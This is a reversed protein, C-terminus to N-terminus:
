GYFFINIKEEPRTFIIKEISNSIATNKEAISANSNIIDVINKINKKIDKQTAVPKSKPLESRVREIEAIIRTKTANYEDLSDFGILYAEKARMLMTEYRKIEKEKLIQETQNKKPSISSIYVSPMSLQTLLSLVANEIKHENIHHSIKCQGHSYKYCQFGHAATSYVLTSGCNGCKLIGSLYHKKTDAPRAKRPKGAKESMYKEHAKNWMEESIIPEHTSQVVITDPSDYIRNSVTKQPSWRVYGKYIPNNLIYEIQRNDFQNGRKSRCGFENLQRTIAFLSKGNLYSEFIYRVYQAEDECVTMEEGSKKTYGYAPSSQIEGRKAKETMGRRVEESLNISYYEDSWEIIREILQGFPGEILPESVSIVEIGLKKRLMNKYLIAEEQNRAFRSFKWVLIVDFPCPTTKALAIMKNFAGRKKVNRGSLGEDVFIYSPEIQIQHALAYQKIKEIQSDPSYELQDDTSVRIYAAGIKM